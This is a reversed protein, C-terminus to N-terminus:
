NVFLVEVIENLFTQVNPIPGPNFKFRQLFCNLVSTRAQRKFRVDSQTVPNRGTSDKRPVNFSLEFGIYESAKFIPVYPPPSLDCQDWSSESPKALQATTSNDTLIWAVKFYPAESMIDVAAIGFTDQM